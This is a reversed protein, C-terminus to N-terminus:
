NYLTEIIKDRDLVYNSVSGSTVPLYYVDKEKKETVNTSTAKNFFGQKVTIERDVNTINWSVTCTKAFNIYIFVCDELSVDLDKVAQKRMGQLKKHELIFSSYDANRHKLEVFYHKLQGKANIKKIYVDYASYQDTAFEYDITNGNHELLEKFAQAGIAENLVFRNTPKIM